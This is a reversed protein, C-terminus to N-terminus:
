EKFLLGKAVIIALLFGGVGCMIAIYLYIYIINNTISDILILGPVILVYTWIFAILICLLFNILQILDCKKM